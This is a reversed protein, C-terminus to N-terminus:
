LGNMIQILLKLIRFFANDIVNLPHYHGLGQLYLM